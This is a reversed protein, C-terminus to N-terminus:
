AVAEFMPPAYTAVVTDTGQRVLQAALVRTVGLHENVGGPLTSAEMGQVYRRLNDANAAGDRRVNWAAPTHHVFRGSAVSYVRPTEVRYTPTTSSM